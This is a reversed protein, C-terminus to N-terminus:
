RTLYSLKCHEPKTHDFQVTWGGYHAPKYVTNDIEGYLMAMPLEEAIRKQIEFILEKRREPDRELEQADLLEDVKPDSYGIPTFQKWKGSRFVSSLYVPDGGLGGYKVIAMEYDGDRVAADRAKGDFSRVKLAIGIKELDNRIMEAMKVEKPNNGVMLTAEFTRGGLLERARETDYAYQPIEPNFWPSTSPVYGQSGPLGHGKELWRIMKERDIGTLVAQRVAREALPAVREPNMLLHYCHMGYVSLIKCDPRKEYQEVMTPNLVLLDLEGKDFALPGNAIPVWELASVAPRPGWYDDVAVMRYAGGVPEYRDLRFPGCGVLWGEGDYALPDEVKEWIHKPLIRVNGIRELATVVPETLVVTVNEGEAEAKAILNKGRYSLHDRVPKHRSCYDFTFLVDDVTVPRGDHWKAGQTLRFKLVKGDGSTEWSEALWPILGKEDHQLLSDYVLEMKFIGPGRNYHRFPNPAGFDGGVLRIVPRDSREASWGPLPSSLVLAAAVALLVVGRLRAFLGCFGFRGRM